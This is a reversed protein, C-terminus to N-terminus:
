IYNFNIFLHFLLSSISYFSTVAIFITTLIKNTKDKNKFLYQFIYGILLAFTFYIIGLYRFDMTCAYPMKVNFFFFSVIFTFAPIISIILNIYNINKYVKLKFIFLLSVVIIILCLAFLIIGIIDKKFLFIISLYISIILSFITISNYNKKITNRILIFAVLFILSLCLITNAVYLTVSTVLNNYSFEGFISSKLMAAYINFDQVYETNNAWLQIFINSFYQKFPFFLFRDFYTRNPDVLLNRNLNDWVYNFPQNYNFYNYLPWYMGIPFVVIAFCSFLLLAKKTKKEKIMKILIYVFEFFIPVAIIAGSVKSAMALGISLALLIITSLKQEYFFKIALYSSNYIFFWLLPDNNSMASVRILYPSAIFFLFAFIIAKNNKIFLRLTKYIFYFQLISLSTTLIRISQYLVFTDNTNLIFSMFHMFYAYTYHAFKPHYFQYSAKLSPTLTNDLILDPITNYEYIHMTISYHGNYNLSWVDHQRTFINDTINMYFLRIIIGIFLIILISKKFTLKKKFYLYFLSAFCVFILILSVLFVDFHNISNVFNRGINQLQQRDQKSSDLQYLNIELSGKTLSFIAYSIFTIIFVIIFFYLFSLKDRYLRSILSKLNSYFNKKTNKFFKIPHALAYSFSYSLKEKAILSYVIFSFLLFILIFSLLFPISIKIM